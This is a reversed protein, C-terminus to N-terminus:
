VEYKRSYNHVTSFIQKFKAISKDYDGLIAMERAVKVDQSIVQIQQSLSIDSM